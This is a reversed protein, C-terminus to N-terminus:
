KKEPGFIDEKLLSLTRFPTTITVHSLKDKFNYARLVSKIERKLITIYKEKDSPLYFSFMYKQHDMSTTDWDIKIDSDIEGKARQSILAALFNPMSINFYPFTKGEKDGIIELALTKDFIKRKSFEDISIREFYYKKLDEVQGITYLIFGSTIDAIVIAYFKLHKNKSNWLIRSTTYTADNFIDRLRKQQIPSAKLLSFPLPIYVWLTQEVVRVSSHVHYTKELVQQIRTPIEEEKYLSFFDGCGVLNLTLLFVLIQRATNPM